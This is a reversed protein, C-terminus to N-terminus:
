YNLSVSWKSENMTNLAMPNPFAATAYLDLPKSTVIALGPSPDQTQWKIAKHGPLSSLKEWGQKFEQFHTNKKTDKSFTNPEYPHVTFKTHEGAHLTWGPSEQHQFCLTAPRKM